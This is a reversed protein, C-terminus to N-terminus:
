KPVIIEPVLNFGIPEKDKYFVELYKIDPPFLVLQQDILFMMVGLAQPLTFKLKILKNMNNYYDELTVLGTDDALWPVLFSCIDSWLKKDIRVRNDYDLNEINKL